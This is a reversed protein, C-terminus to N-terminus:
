RQSIATPAGRFLGGAVLCYISIRYLSMWVPLEVTTKLEWAKVIRFGRYESNGLKKRIVLLSPLGTYGVKALIM